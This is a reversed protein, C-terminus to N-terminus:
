SPGSCRRGWSRVSAASGQISDHRARAEAAESRHKAAGFQPIVSGRRHPRDPLCRHLHCPGGNAPRGGRQRAGACGPHLPRGLAGATARGRPRRERHHDPGVADSVHTSPGGEQARNRLPQHPLLNRDRGPGSGPVLHTLLPSMAADCGSFLPASILLSVQGANLRRHVIM